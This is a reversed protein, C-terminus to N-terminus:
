KWGRLDLTVQCFFFMASASTLTIALQMQGGIDLLWLATGTGLATWFGFGAATKQDSQYSEDLAANTNRKGASLAAIFFVVFILIATALPLWHPLQHPNVGALAALAYTACIIGGLAFALIRVITLTQASIM